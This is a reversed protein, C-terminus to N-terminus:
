PFMWMIRETRWNQLHRKRFQCIRLSATKSSIFFSVPFSLTVIVGSCYILNGTTVSNRTNGRRGCIGFTLKLASKDGMELLEKHLKAFPIGKNLMLLVYHSISAVAVDEFGGGGVVAIFALKVLLQM